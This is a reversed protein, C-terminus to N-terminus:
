LRTILEYEAALLRDSVWYRVVTDCRRKKIEEDYEKKGLRSLFLSGLLNVSNSTRRKRRRM